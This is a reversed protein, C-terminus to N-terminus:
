MEEPFLSLQGDGLQNFSRRHYPTLGHLRIGERHERTPYGANHDWGYHPYEEHLRCMYDDRYTKALISAAAISLYKGDGKVITQHPLNGYPKFRNGDVIVFEPRVKLADLARHMALISANLINIKDIEDPTVIGVAFALAEKEIEERLAYRKRATLQKSDNLQENSYDPPLIVAAAYVSGALCGRGAEDCGAEVWGAENFVPLLRPM